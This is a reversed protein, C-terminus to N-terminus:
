YAFCCDNFSHLLSPHRSKGKMLEERRGPQSSTHYTKTYFSKTILMEIDKPLRFILDFEYDIVLQPSVGVKTNSMEVVQM